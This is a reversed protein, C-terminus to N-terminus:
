FIATKPTKANSKTTNRENMKVKRKARSKPPLAHKLVAM